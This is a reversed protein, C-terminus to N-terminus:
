KQQFLQTGTLYSTLDRRIIFSLLPLVAVGTGMTVLSRWIVLLPFVASRQGNKQALHIDFAWEGLTSGTVSRSIVVYLQLISLYM